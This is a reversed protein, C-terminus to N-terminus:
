VAYFEEDDMDDAQDRWAVVGFPGYDYSNFLYEIDFILNGFDDM